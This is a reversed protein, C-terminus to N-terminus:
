NFIVSFVTKKSQPNVRDKSTMNFPNEISQEQHSTQLQAIYPPFIM